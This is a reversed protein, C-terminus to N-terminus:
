KLVGIGERNFRQRYWQLSYAPPPAWTTTTRSSPRLGGMLLYRVADCAHDDSESDLDEADHTDQVMLPMTRILYKCRPHITLWPRPPHDTHSCPALAEHVRQWGNKRDNSVRVVPVGYRALTLGIWEGLEGHKAPLLSPDCYVPPVRKLKWEKCKLKIQEAVDKATMRQFKYEDYITVHSDPLAAGWVVCGPSSNGWDLGLGVRLDRVRM